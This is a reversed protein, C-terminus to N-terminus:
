RILDIGVSLLATAEKVLRGCCEKYVKIRPLVFM